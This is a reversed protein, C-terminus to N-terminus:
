GERGAPSPVATPVWQIQRLAEYLVIGASTSLNLSRVSDGEMPISYFREPFAARLEDSLGQTESGFVLYSDRVFRADWYSREAKKSFFYLAPNEPLSQHFTQWTAHRQMTLKPWYDLGARKLHTDDISFGMRGVLHLTSKTAVCSRAVNGANGPIDPEVLVIHVAVNYEGLSVSGSGGGGSELRSYADIQSPGLERQGRSPSPTCQRSGKQGTCSAAHGKAPGKGQKDDKREGRSRSDLRSINGRRTRFGRRDRDIGAIVAEKMLGARM